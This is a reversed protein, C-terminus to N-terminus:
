LTFSKSPYLTNKALKLKKRGETTLRRCAICFLLRKNLFSSNERICEVDAYITNSVSFIKPFKSSPNKGKVQFDSKKQCFSLETILQVFHFFSILCSSSIEVIKTKNYM